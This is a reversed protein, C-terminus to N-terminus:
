PLVPRNGGALLRQAALAVFIQLSLIRDITLDFGLVSQTAASRFISIVLSSARAARCPSMSATLSQSAVPPVGSAILVFPFESSM